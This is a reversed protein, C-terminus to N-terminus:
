PSRRRPARPRRPRPAPARSSPTAASPCPAARLARGEPGKPRSPQTSGSAVCAVPSCRPHQPSADSAPRGVHAFLSKLVARRQGCQQPARYRSTHPSADTEECGHLHSPPPGLWALMQRLSRTDMDEKTRTKHSRTANWTPEPKRTADLGSGRRSKVTSIPRFDTLKDLKKHSHLFDDLPGGFSPNDLRAREQHWRKFGVGQRGDQRGIEQSASLLRKFVANLRGWCIETTTRRRQDERPRAQHSAQALAPCPVFAHHPCFPLQRPTGPCLPHTQHCEDYRTTMNNTESQESENRAPRTDDNIDAKSRLAVM